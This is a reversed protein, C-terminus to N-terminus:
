TRNRWLKLAEDLLLENTFATYDVWPYSPLFAVMGNRVAKLNNWLKSDALSKWSSKSQADEDVILLLRDADFETLQAPSIRKEASMDNVGRAPVVQLDDYFVTGISRSDLINIRGESIRLILLSDDKIAYKIQESVFRAKRKYHDLWAEAVATRGLFRAIASLHKRWDSEMWPVFFAPAIKGLSEKEEASVFLDIGIIFDPAALRLEERKIEEDSSLPLVFDTKYKRQYYDTWPHDAPAACPTVQLALLQGINSSHYAVIKQRSNKIFAAPPIGSIQKFKRRFYMDDHYGVHRAIDRLRYHGGTRMLQQAREIRYVALYDIASYGYRKKFLRMFHRPSIGAVKALQEITLDEQYHQEIYAKAYGLVEESDNEHM